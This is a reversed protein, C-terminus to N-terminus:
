ALIGQIHTLREAVRVGFDCQVTCGPCSACKAAAHEESLSRFHERGCFYRRSLRRM